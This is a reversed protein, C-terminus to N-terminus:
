RSGGAACRPDPVSLPADPHRAPIPLGAFGPEVLRRARHLYTHAALVARRGAAAVRRRRDADRLAEEVRSRLEEGASFGLLEEGDRFLRLVDGQRDVVQCVGCALIEFVRTNALEGSVERPGFAGYHINIAVEAAAYLRRWASPRLAGGRLMGELHPDHRAREWGPGWIGVPLGRLFRLLIQREPYHSGVFVVRPTPGEGPRDAPDPPRHVQEDCAFPLWGARRHGADRHRRAAYSSGLLFADYAPAVALGAAFEAPYDSFWNVCRAGLARAAEISRRELVMGQNVIVLQPRHRRVTAVFRANLARRDLRQLLPWRARLRGPICFRRHDFRDVQHDLRRLASVLYDPLAEFRPNFLGSLLIRM